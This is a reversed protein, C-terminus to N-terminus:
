SRNIDIPEQFVVVVIDDIEETVPLEVTIQAPGNWRRMKNGVFFWLRCSAWGTESLIPSTSPVSFNPPQVVWGKFFCAREDDIEPM